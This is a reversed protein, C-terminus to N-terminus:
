LERLSNTYQNSQNILAEIQAKMEPPHYPEQIDQLLEDLSFFTGKGRIIWPRTIILDNRGDWEITPIEDITFIERKYIGEILPRDFLTECSIWKQNLYCECWPHYEIVDPMQQYVVDSVIGKLSDKSLEVVHFRAQFNLARLFAVQLNTKNGCDGIGRKLTESAPVFDSLMFKIQDRVFRFITLAMTKTDAANETLENAKAIIDPHDCDCFETPERYKHEDNTLEFKMGPM